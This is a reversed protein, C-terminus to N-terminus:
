AAPDSAALNELKARLARSRALVKQGADLHVRLSAEFAVRFREASVEQLKRLRTYAQEIGDRATPDESAGEAQSMAIIEDYLREIEEDIDLPAVLPSGAEPVEARLRARFEDWAAGTEAQSLEAAPSGAPAEAVGYVLLITCEECLSLHEAILDDQAPSLDGCSYAAMEELSPHARRIMERQRAQSELQETPTM